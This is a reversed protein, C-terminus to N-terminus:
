ASKRYLAHYVGKSIGSGLVACLLAEILGQVGVMLVIFM